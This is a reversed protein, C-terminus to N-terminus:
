AKNEIKNIKKCKTRNKKVFDGFYLIISTVTTASPLDDIDTVVFSTTPSRTRLVLTPPRNLRLFINSDTSTCDYTNYLHAPDTYKDVGKKIIQM